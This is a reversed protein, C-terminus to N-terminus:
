TRNTNGDLFIVERMPRHNRLGRIRKHKAAPNSAKTTCDPSSPLASVVKRRCVVCQSQVEAGCTKRFWYGSNPRCPRSPLIYLQYPMPWDKSISGASITPVHIACQGIKESYSSSGPIRLM